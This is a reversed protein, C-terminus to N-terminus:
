NPLAVFNRGGILRGQVYVETINRDDGGFLFREVMEDLGMESEYWVGPNGMNPTIKVRLADFAKNPELSGIHKEM